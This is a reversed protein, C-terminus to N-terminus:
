AYSKLIDAATVIISDTNHSELCLAIVILIFLAVIQWAEMAASGVDFVNNLYAFSYLFQVMSSNIITHDIVARKFNLSTLLPQQLVIVPQHTLVNAVVWLKLMRVLFYYNALGKADSTFIEV